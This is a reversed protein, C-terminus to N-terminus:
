SQMIIFIYRHGNCQSIRPRIIRDGSVLLCRNKIVEEHLYVTVSGAVCLCFTLAGLNNMRCPQVSLISICSM